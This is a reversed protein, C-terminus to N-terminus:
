IRGADSGSEELQENKQLDKNYGKDGEMRNELQSSFYIIDICIEPM